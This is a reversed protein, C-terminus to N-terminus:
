PGYARFPLMACQNLLLNRRLKWYLYNFTMCRVMRTKCRGDFRTVWEWRMVNNSCDRIGFILPREHSSKYLMCNVNADPVETFVGKKAYRRNVKLSITIRRRRRSLRRRRWHSRRKANYIWKLMEQTNVAVVSASCLRDRCRMPVCLILKCMFIESDCLNVFECNVFAHIWNSSLAM